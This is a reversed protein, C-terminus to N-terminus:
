KIINGIGCIVRIVKEANEAIYCSIRGVCERWERDAKDMPVVGYGIEDSIIIIDPNEALMKDTVSRIDRNDEMMKRIFLHFDKVARETMVTDYDAQPIDAIGYKNKVFASKGSNKGGIVFRM